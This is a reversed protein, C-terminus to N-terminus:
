NSCERPLYPANEPKLGRADAGDADDRGLTLLVTRQRRRIRDIQVARKVLQRPVTDGMECKFRGRVAEVLVAEIAHPDGALANVIV